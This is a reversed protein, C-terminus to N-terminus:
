EAGRSELEKRLDRVFKCCDKVDSSQQDKDGITILYLIQEAESPFVYLRIAKKGKKLPSQDIAHIGLQENRVFASKVIQMPKVGCKLSTLDIDLNRLTQEVEDPHEKILQKLRSEYKSTWKLIWM